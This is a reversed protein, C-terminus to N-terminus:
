WLGSWKQATVTQHWAQSGQLLLTWPQRLWQRTHGAGALRAGQLNETFTLSQVRSEHKEGQGQLTVEEVHVHTDSSTPSNPVLYLVWCAIFVLQVPHDEVDGEKEEDDDDQQGNDLTLAWWPRPLPPQTWLCALEKAYLDLIQWGPNM